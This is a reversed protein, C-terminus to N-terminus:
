VLPNIRSFLGHSFMQFPAKFFYSQPRSSSGYQLMWLPGIPKGQERHLLNMIVHLKKTPAGEADLQVTDLALRSDFFFAELERRLEENLPSINDLESRVSWVVAQKTEIVGQGSSRSRRRLSLHDTLEYGSRSFVTWAPLKWSPVQAYHVNFCQTANTASPWHIHCKLSYSILSKLTNAFTLM